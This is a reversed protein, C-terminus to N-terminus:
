GFKAQFRRWKEWLYPWRDKLPETSAKHDFFNVLFELQAFSEQSESKILDLLSIKVEEISPRNAAHVSIMDQVLAKVAPGIPPVGEITISATKAWKRWADAKTWKKTNGEVQRPWYDSLKIGVPHFGGSM